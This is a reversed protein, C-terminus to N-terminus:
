HLCAARRKRLSALGTAGLALLALSGPEPVGQADAVDPASALSLRSGAEIGVGAVSEYAWDGIDFTGDSVTLEVWGYHWGDDLFRFGLYGSTDGLWAGGSGSGTVVPYYYGPYTWCGYRDCGGGGPSYGMYGSQWRQYLTETGGGYSDGADILTGAALAAGFILETGAGTGVATQYNYAPYTSSSSGNFSLDAYGIELLFSGSRFGAADTGTILGATAFQPLALGGLALGASAIRSLPISPTMPREAIRYLYHQIVFAIEITLTDDAFSQTFRKNPRATSYKVSPREIYIGGNHRGRRIVDAGREAM